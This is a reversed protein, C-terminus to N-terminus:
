HPGLTGICTCFLLIYINCLILCDTCLFMEVIFIYWTPSMHFLKAFYSDHIVSAFVFVLRLVQILSSCTHVKSKHLISWLIGKSESNPLLYLSLSDHHSISPHLIHCSYSSAPIPYQM